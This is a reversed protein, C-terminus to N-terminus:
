LIICYSYQLYWSLVACLAYVLALYLCMQTCGLGRVAVHMNKEQQM